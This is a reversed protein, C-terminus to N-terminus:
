ATGEDPRYLRLPGVPYRRALARVAFRTAVATLAVIPVDILVFEWSIKYEGTVVTATVGGVVSALVWTVRRATRGPVAECVLALVVGFYVPVIENVHV